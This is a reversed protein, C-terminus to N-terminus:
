ALATPVLKSTVLHPHDKGNSKGTGPDRVETNQFVSKYWLLPQPCISMREKERVCVCACM